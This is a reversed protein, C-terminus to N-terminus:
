RAAGAKKDMRVNAWVYWSGVFAALAFILVAMAEAQQPENFAGYFSTMAVGLLQPATPGILYPITYAGLVGITSFTAVIVVPLTNLPFLIRWSVTWMRAGVDRAAEVYSDPVSTLGSALMLVSFPLGTWINGIVVGFLTHGFSPFHKDGLHNALAQVFGGANWFTVLGYSAIVSPIFMPILYLTSVIRSLVGNSLRIYLAIAWSVLLLLVVSAATVWLTSYLDARVSKMQWLGRYVGLTPGHTAVVQNQAMQSVVANSGGTYGLTYLFAEITPLGAFLLVFALPLAGFLFGLLRRDM